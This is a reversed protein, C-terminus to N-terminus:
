DVQVFHSGLMFKANVQPADLDVLLQKGEFSRVGDLRRMTRHSKVSLSSAQYSNCEGVIDTQHGLRRVLGLSEQMM